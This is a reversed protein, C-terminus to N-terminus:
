KGKRDSLLVALPAVAPILACLGMCVAIDRAMRAFFPEPYMRIMADTAPNLLWLDNKFLLEHFRIFLQAFDFGCSAAFALAVAVWLGLAMLGSFAVIRRKEAIALAAALLILGAVLAGMKVNREMAFLDRVDHMHAMERENFIPQPEGRLTVVRNLQEDPVESALYGAMDHQVSRLAEKSVGVDGYVDLQEQYRNYRREDLAVHEFGMLSMGLMMAMLSLVLCCLGVTRKM